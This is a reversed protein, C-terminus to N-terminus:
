DSVKWRGNEPVECSPRKQTEIPVLVTVIFELDLSVVRPEGCFLAPWLVASPPANLSAISAFVLFSGLLSFSGIWAGIELFTDFWIPLFFVSSFIYLARLRFIRAISFGNVKTCFLICVLVREREREWERVSWIRIREGQFFSIYSMILLAPFSLSPFFFCLSLPHPQQPDAITKINDYWAILFRSSATSFCSCSWWWM